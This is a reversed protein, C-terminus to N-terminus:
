DKRRVMVKSCQDGIQLLYIGEARNSMNITIKQSKVEKITILKKGMMTFLSLQKGLAGVVFLEKDVPNPYFSVQSIPDSADLSSLLIYQENEKAEITVFGTENEHDLHVISYEVKTGELYGDFRVTGTEDTVQEVGDVIVTVGEMREDEKEVIFTLSYTQPALKIVESLDRDKVIFSSSYAECGEPNVTIFLETGSLVESMSVQGEENTVLSGYGDIQITEGALIEEGCKLTFVVKFSGPVVTLTCDNDPMTFDELNQNYLNGKEDRWFVERTYDLVPVNAVKQEFYMKDTRLATGDAGVFNLNHRNREFMARYTGKPFAVFEGAEIEIAKLGFDMQQWKYLQHGNLSPRPLVFGKLQNARFANNDIVMVNNPLVVESLQNNYFAHDGIVELNQPLQVEQLLNYSFASSSVVRILDPITVSLLQNSYFAFEGITTLGKPLKIESLFNRSFARSGVEELGEPLQINQLGKQSFVEKGIAVVNQQDLKSPIIINPNSFDYSCSLIRGQVVVVDEDKLTYWDNHVAQLTVDRNPMTFGSLSPPYLVKSKTDRWGNFFLSSSAINPVEKVKEDYNVEDIALQQGNSDCFHLNFSCVSFKAKLPYHIAQIFDFIRGDQFEGYVWPFWGKFRLGEKKTIPLTVTTISTKYFAEMGIYTLSTPLTVSDLSTKKFAFLMVEELGESLELNVLPNNYFAAREITVINEPIQLTELENHAFGQFPITRLKESFVIKTLKNKLFCGSGLTDLSNPMELEVLQNDRFANIGISKLSGPFEVKILQNDQFAYAPIKTLGTPLTLKAIANNSFVSSGMTVLNDHLVLEKLRNQDFTSYGLNELTKPLLLEELYNNKFACNGISLLGEPLQLQCIQKAEFVGKDESGNGIATVTQGDLRAPVIINKNAFNYSCAVITGNEMEVDEDQLTYWGNLVPELTVEKAPMEFSTLGKDYFINREKDLWGNFFLAENEVVPVESLTEGFVVEFEQAVVGDVNLFSLTYENLDFQATYALEFNDIETGAEIIQKKSSLWNLFVGKEKVPSPLVISNLENDAFAGKSISEITSPLEVRSILNNRFANYGIFQLGEPLKINRIEIDHFFSAVSRAPSGIGIVQQGDLKAPIVINKNVFGNSCSVIFGNIVEVDFDQLTYWESYVAELVIDKSGMRFDSLSPTYVIDTGLERWGCFALESEEVMPVSDLKAGCTVVEIALVNENQDKFTLQFPLGQLNAEYSFSDWENTEVEAGAPFIQGYMGEWNLFDYGERQTHPLVFTKAINSEFASGDIYYISSPLVIEAIQNSRFVYREIVEVGQELYLNKIGKNEFVGTRVWKGGLTKVEQSDLVFPIIINPNSFDYSCAILRGDEVEVDEDTLTYWEGYKVKLTTNKPLMKFDKLNAAYVIKTETDMWGEFPQNTEVLTPLEPVSSGCDLTDKKLESGNKDEFTLEFPLVDYQAIYDFSLEDVQTNAKYTYGYDDEWNQFVYGERNAEPLVFSSMLNNRFAHSGIKRVLDGFVIEKIYNNSFASSGIVEMSAPLDLSSIKNDYFNSASITKLGNPLQVNTIGKSAFVSSGYEEGIALVEQGDLQNPIIINTNSFDYSCSKLIGKVVEVDEDKLTYWESTIAKLKVDKYPMTFDSLNVVFEENTEVDLWGEFAFEDSHFSPPVIETAEFVTELEKIVKNNDDVFVLSFTHATFDAEYSNTLDSVESGGQFVTQNEDVWHNFDFGQKKSNPLLFSSLKNQDFAYSGIMRISLPLEITNLSNNQFAAYDITHLSSSFKVKEIKNDGFANSGIIKVTSPLEVTILDNNYFCLSNIEELGEPLKVHHIDKNRFCRQYLKKVEYGNITQPIIINKNSFDYTCSHITGDSSIQIDNTTLTYWEVLKPKLTINRTTVAFDSLTPLYNTGNSIDIWSEITLGSELTPPTIQFEEVTFGQTDVTDENQDLFTVQYTQPSFQAEYSVTLDSVVVGGTFENGDSSTWKEFIYGEKQSNPLTIQKLTGRAFATEHIKSLSNPLKISQMKNGAFADYALSEVGEPIQVSTIHGQNFLGFYGSGIQTIKQGKLESPIIINTVADAAFFDYYHDKLVGKEVRVESDTLTHWQVEEASLSTSFLMAMSYVLWHRLNLHKM